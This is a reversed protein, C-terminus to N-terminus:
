EGGKQILEKFSFYLGRSSRKDLDKWIFALSATGLLGLSGVLVFVMGYGFSVVLWGGILAAAAAGINVVTSDIGQETSERGKDINRTFLGSFGSFNMALGVAHLGQLLYIHWPLTAFIFGFSVFSAILLGAATFAFDAKQSSRGDLYLGMPVRLLALLGSYIAAAAGAIFENGGQIRDVVFVAFIPSILGWGSWFVLDSLLLFKIIKNIRFKIM